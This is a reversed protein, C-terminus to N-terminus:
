GATHWSIRSKQRSKEDSTAGATSGVNAVSSDAIRYGLNKLAGQVRDYGWTPNGTAFSVIADVIEQRIHPRGPKRNVSSDFTKAVMKRHWRLITDPTVITTLEFLANRGIVQGKVPLLRRQNADLLLRKRGLKNLRAEIQANQFEIIQQQRHNVM